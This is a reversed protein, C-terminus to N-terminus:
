QNLQDFEISTQRILNKKGLVPGTDVEGVM